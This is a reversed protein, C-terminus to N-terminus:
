SKALAVNVSAVRMRAGAAQILLSALSLRQRQLDTAKQEAMTVAVSGAKVSTRTQKGAEAGGFVPGALALRAAETVGDQISEDQTETFLSPAIWAARVWTSADMIAANRGADDALGWDVWGRASAYADARSLETMPGTEWGAESYAPM